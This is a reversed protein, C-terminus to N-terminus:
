AAVSAGAYGILGATRKVGCGASPEAPNGAPRGGSLRGNQRFRMVVPALTAVDARRTTRRRASNQPTARSVRNKQKRDSKGFSPAIGEFSKAIKRWIPSSKTSRHAGPAAVFHPAPLAFLAIKDAIQRMEPRSDQPSAACQAWHMIPRPLAFTVYKGSFKVDNAKWNQTKAAPRPASSIRQSAQLSRGGHRESQAAHTDWVSRWPPRQRCYRSAAFRRAPSGRHRSNHPPHSHQLIRGNTESRSANREFSKANTSIWAPTIQATSRSLFVPKSGASLFDCIAFPWYERSIRTMERWRRLSEGLRAVSIRHLLNPETVSALATKEIFNKMKRWVIQQRGNRRLQTDLLL